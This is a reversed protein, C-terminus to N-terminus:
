LSTWETFPVKKNQVRRFGSGSIGPLVRRSGTIGPPVRVRALVRALVRPMSRPGPAYVRILVRVRCQVQVRALVRPMSGPNPCLGPDPGSGLCQVRVRALVRPMSGPNPCLGPDPGSGLCQAWVRALVFIGRGGCIKIRATAGRGSIQGGGALKSDTRDSHEFQMGDFM